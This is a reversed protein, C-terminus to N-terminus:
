RLHWSDLGADTQATDINDEIYIQIQSIFISCLLVNTDEELRDTLFMTWRAYKNIMEQVVNQKWKVEGGGCASGLIMEEQADFLAEFLLLLSFILLILRSRVQSLEDVSSM